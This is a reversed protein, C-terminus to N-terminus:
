FWKAVSFIIRFLLPHVLYLDYTKQGLRQWCRPFHAQTQIWNAIALIGITAGIMVPWQSFRLALLPDIGSRIQILGLYSVTLWSGIAVGWSIQNFLPWKKAIASMTSLISKLALGLGFYWGWNAAWFYQESDTRLFDPEGVLYHGSIIKFWALQVLFLGCLTLKPWRQYIKLLWPFLLYLQVLLPVFYLHYDARGLLLQWGFGPQLATTQWQPIIKFIVWSFWSWFFYKPLLKKARQRYFVRLNLPQTRYKQCLGYASLMVFLPVGLRCGQNLLVAGIQILPQTALFPSNKFTALLHIILVSLMAGAKLVQTAALSLQSKEPQTKKETPFKNEVTSLSILPAQNM